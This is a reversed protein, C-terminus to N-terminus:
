APLDPLARHGVTAGGDHPDLKALDALSCVGGPQRRAVGLPSRPASEAGAVGGGVVAILCCAGQLWVESRDGSLDGGCAGVCGWGLSSWLCSRLMIGDWSSLCLCISCDPM